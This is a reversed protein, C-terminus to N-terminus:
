PHQTVDDAQCSPLETAPNCQAACARDMDVATRDTRTDRGHGVDDALLDRGDFRDALGFASRLDLPSPEVDFDYLAAVALWALDHRRCSKELVVGWGFSASILAAMDPLIQRQPVYKRM